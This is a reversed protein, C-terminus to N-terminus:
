WILSPAALESESGKVEQRRGKRKKEPYISLYIVGDDDDILDHIKANLGV